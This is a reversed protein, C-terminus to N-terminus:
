EFKPSPQSFEIWIKWVHQLNVRYSPVSNKLTNPNNLISSLKCLKVLWCELHCSYWLGPIVSTHWQQCQENCINGSSIFWCILEFSNLLVILTTPPFNFCFVITHFNGERDQHYITWGYYSSQIRFLLSTEQVRKWFRLQIMQNFLFLLFQVSNILTISCWFKINSKM